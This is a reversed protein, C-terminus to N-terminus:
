YRKKDIKSEKFLWDVMSRMENDSMSTGGKPPMGNIGEIANKYVADMGKTAVREWDAKNGLVPAGMSSDAHCMACSSEYVSKQASDVNAGIKTSPLDKVTVLPPLFDSQEITLPVVKATPKQCDTMCREKIGGFNNPDDFYARVNDTGEPGDISPEFGDVNPMKIKLFKEQDLVYEDDVEEGDIEMENINMIYAVLGYVEDESLSRTDTHPMGEKIYWWLTSAQPWYTGFVRIPGDADPTTRQNTLSKQGEEAGGKALAPYGGGGSGFDGHCMVCKADYTEEGEEVSGSGEPPPAWPTVSTAWAALENPTTSRGYSYGGEQTDQNVHYPGTKSDEVPYTMGGDIVKKGNEYTRSTESGAKNTSAGPMLAEASEACGAAVIAAAAVASASIILKRDLKFM